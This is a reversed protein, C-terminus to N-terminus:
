IPVGESIKGAGHPGYGCTPAQWHHKLPEAAPSHDAHTHTILIHTVVEGALQAKLAEIHEDLLPGPDIVAVRGRGVVYTGTGNFTFGSPNRATMRRILPTLTELEGYAFDYAYEFPISVNM